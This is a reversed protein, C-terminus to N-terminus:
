AGVLPGLGLLQPGGAEAFARQAELHGARVRDLAARFRPDDRLGAWARDREWTDVAWFGAAARELLQMALELEGALAGPRANVYLGEPDRFSVISAHSIGQRVQERDGEVAGRLSQIWYFDAGELQLRQFERMAALAEDNRGLEVMAMWRVGPVEDQDAAIARAYEGQLLYTYHVSTRVQPDLRRAERDAALSADMLGCLRCAAVLGAFIQPDRVGARVQDLLRLMARQGGGPQELELFTYLNHTLPLDPALRLAREFAETALRRCEEPDGHGFKGMVRYTRGLRAWAPAFSPDEVVAQRFLDRAAILQSTSGVGARLDNGRLYLEYARPSAPAAEQLRRDDRPSLTLSLARVVAETLEDQLVFVDALTSQATTAALVTGAPAQVLQTQLRVRDGARLLTGFLVADVEADHALATLDPAGNADARGASLSSRVVLQPLGGLAVTLADALGFSLFDIEPDPRLLRFPLVMLRTVARAQLQETQASDLQLAAGRAERLATSMTAASPWREEPRKALARRLVRDVAEVRAGGALAPPSSALVAHCIEGLSDGPFAARGALMEFFLVAAVFLDTRPSVAEARWQEPAMYRPTGVLTGPTTLRLDPADLPLALGFDLVKVGHTTLFVNSPKLDRHVIGREHLAALAALIGEAIRLTEELPVVGRAMRTELPEGDLLEMALFLRGDEEVLDYVQCVNPHSLSAAARAERWIRERTAADHALVTKLAVERGLREDRAAYVLGMGGRGLEEVLRYRDAVRRPADMSRPADM